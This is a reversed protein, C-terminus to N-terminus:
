AQTRLNAQETLLGNTGLFSYRQAAECVFFFRLGFVGNEQKPLNLYQRFRSM